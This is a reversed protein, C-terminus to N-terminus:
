EILNKDSISEKKTTKKARDAPRVGVNIISGM